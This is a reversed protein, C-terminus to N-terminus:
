GLIATRRAPTNESKVSSANSSRWWKSGGCRASGSRSAADSRSSQARASALGTARRLARLARHADRPRSRHGVPHRGYAPGDGEIIARVRRVDHGTLAAIQEDSFGVGALIQETRRAGRSADQERDAVLLALIGNLSTEQDVGNIYDIDTHM